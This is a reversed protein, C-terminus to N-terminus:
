SGGRTPVRSSSTSSTASSRTAAPQRCTALPWRCAPFARSIRLCCAPRCRAQSPARAASELDARERAAREDQLAIHLAVEGAAAATLTELVHVDQDTWHRTRTDVVCFSGLVEGTPAVLPFGAWAAVGLTEITPNDHTRPDRAADDVILRDGTGVVYQCFSEAVTLSRTVIGTGELGVASKWFSRRDDVVTVFAYPADLLTAALRALRDFPEEPDTDLLRTRAVAALREPDAIENPM